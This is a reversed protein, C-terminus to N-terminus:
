IDPENAAETKTSTDDSVNDDNESIKDLLQTDIIMFNCRHIYLGMGDVTILTTKPLKECVEWKVQSGIVAGIDYGDQSQILVLKSGNQGRNKSKNDHWWYRLSYWDGLMSESTNMDTNDYEHEPRSQSSLDIPLLEVRKDKFIITSGCSQIYNDDIQISVVSSTEYWSTYTGESNYGYQKIKNPRIDFSKNEFTVYNNGRNDYFMSEYIIPEHQTMDNPDYTQNQNQGLTVGTDYDSCGTLMVAILLLSLLTKVKNKM